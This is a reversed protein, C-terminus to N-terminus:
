IWPDLYRGTHGASAEHGTALVAFDGHHVSGDSLTIAIGSPFQAVSVCEGKVIRLRSHRGGDTALSAILSALYERYIKRPVFCFPDGGTQWTVPGNDERARLWHWFHDPQDPFASMNCARVNLLHDPNATCYAVGRGVESRKEILTVNLNSDPNRLLHCALLVGSAGGGVILVDTRYDQM